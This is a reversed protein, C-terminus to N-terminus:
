VGLAVRADAQTDHITVTRDFGTMEFTERVPDSLGCLALEADRGQLSKAIALFVRLGASGIYPCGGLDVIVACDGEAIADRVSKEFTAATSGDIREAVDVFLVDGDRETTMDM